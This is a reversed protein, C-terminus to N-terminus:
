LYITQGYTVAIQFELTVAVLNKPREPEDLIVAESYGTKERLSNLTKDEIQLDTLDGGSIDVIFLPLGVIGITQLFFLGELKIVDDSTQLLSLTFVRSTDSNYELFANGLIDRSLGFRKGSKSPVMSIWDRMTVFSEIDNPIGISINVKDPRYDYLSM